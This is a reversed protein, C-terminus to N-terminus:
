PTMLKVKQGDRLFTVGAVAVVDGANVGDTIEVMDDRGPRGRVPTRRVVSAAADYVFVYGADEGPGPAIASLPVLYGASERDKAMTFEVEATM